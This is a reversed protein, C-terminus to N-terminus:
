SIQGSDAVYHFHASLVDGSHVDLPRRVFGDRDGATVIGTLTAIGGRCSVNVIVGADAESLSTTWRVYLTREMDPGCKVTPVRYTGAARTFGTAATVEYGAKAGDDTGLAGAPLTSLTQVM